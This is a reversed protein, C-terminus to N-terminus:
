HVLSNGSRIRQGYVVCVGRPLHVCEWQRKNEIKGRMRGGGGIEDECEGESGEM